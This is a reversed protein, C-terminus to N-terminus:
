ECLLTEQNCIYNDNWDVNGIGERKYVADLTACDTMSDATFGTFCSYSYINIPLPEYPPCEPVIYITRKELPAPANDMARLRFHSVFSQWSVEENDPDPSAWPGSLQPVAAM